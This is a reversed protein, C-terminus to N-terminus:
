LGVPADVRRRSRQARKHIRVLLKPKQWLTHMKSGLHWDLQPNVMELDFKFYIKALTTRMEMWGLSFVMLMTM